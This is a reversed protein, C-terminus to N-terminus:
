VSGADIEGRGSGVVHENRLEIGGAFRNEIGGIHPSANRILSGADGDIRLVINIDSPERM